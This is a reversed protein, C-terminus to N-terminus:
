FESGRQRKGVEQQGHPAQELARKQSARLLVSQAGNSGFETSSRAARSVPLFQPRRAESTGGLRSLVTFARLLETQRLDDQQFAQLLRGGHERQFPVECARVEGLFYQPKYQWVACLSEVPSELDLPSEGQAARVFRALAVTWIRAAFPNLGHKKFKLNAGGKTNALDEFCLFCYCIDAPVLHFADVVAAVNEAHVEISGNFRNALHSAYGSQLQANRDPRLPVEETLDVLDGREVTPPRRWTEFHNRAHQSFGRRLCTHEHRQFSTPPAGLTTPASAAPPDVDHCGVWWLCGKWLFLVFVFAASMLLLSGLFICAVVAWTGM